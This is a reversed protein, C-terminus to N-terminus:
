LGRSSWWAGGLGVLRVLVVVVEALGVSSGLRWNRHLLLVGMRLLLLLVGMQLLLLLLLVERRFAM